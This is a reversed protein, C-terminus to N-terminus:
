AAWIQSTGKEVCTQRTGGASNTLMQVSGGSHARGRACCRGVTNDTGCIRATKQWRVNSRGLVPASRPLTWISVRQECHDFDGARCGRVTAQARVFSDEL